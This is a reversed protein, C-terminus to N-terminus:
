KGPPNLRRRKLENVLEDVTPNELIRDRDPTYDGHGLRPIL